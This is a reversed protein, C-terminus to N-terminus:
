HWVQQMYAFNGSTEVTTESSQIVMDREASPYTLLRYFQQKEATTPTHGFYEAAGSAVGVFQTVLQIKM